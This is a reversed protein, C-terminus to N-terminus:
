FKSRRNSLRALRTREAASPAGTVPEESTPEVACSAAPQPLIRVATRTEFPPEFEAAAMHARLGPPHPAEDVEEDTCAAGLARTVIARSRHNSAEFPPELYRIKGAHTPLGRCRAVGADGGAHVGANTACRRRNSRYNSNKFLPEFRGQAV